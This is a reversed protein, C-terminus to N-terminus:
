VKGEGGRDSAVIPGQDMLEVVREDTQRGAGADICRDITLGGPVRRETRGQSIHVDDGGGIGSGLTVGGFGDVGPKGIEIPPTRSLVDNPVSEPQRAVVKAGDTGVHTLQAPTPSGEVFAVEEESDQGLWTRLPVFRGEGLQQGRDVGPGHAEEGTIHGGRM